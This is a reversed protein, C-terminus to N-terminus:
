HPHRYPLAQAARWAAWCLRSALPIAELDELDLGRVAALFGTLVESQLDAPDGRYASALSAVARRLGPLAIGTLGIVWAPDGSRARRVLEAWVRNRARPSTAPHLLLVRLEGRPVPRDRLGGALHSAHVALRRGGAALSVGPAEGPALGIGARAQTIAPWTCRPRAPPVHCTWAM